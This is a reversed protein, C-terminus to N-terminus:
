RVTALDDEQLHIFAFNGTIGDGIPQRQIRLYLLFFVGLRAVGIWGHPQADDVSFTSAHFPNRKGFVPVDVNRPEAPNPISKEPGLHQIPLLVRQINIKDICLRSVGALYQSLVTRVRPDVDAIIEPNQFRAVPKQPRTPAIPVGVKIEIAKVFLVRQVGLRRELPLEGLALEFHHSHFSDIRIRAQHIESAVLAIRALFLDKRPFSSPEPKWRIEFSAPVCVAEKEGFPLYKTSPYEAETVADRRETHEAAPLGHKGMQSDRLMPSYPKM